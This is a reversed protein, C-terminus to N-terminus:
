GSVGTFFVVKAFDIDCLSAGFFKLSLSNSGTGSALSSVFSSPVNIDDGLEFRLVKALFKVM